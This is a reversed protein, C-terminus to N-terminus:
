ENSCQQKLECLNKYELSDESWGSEFESIVINIERDVGYTNGLSDYIESYLQDYDGDYEPIGWKLWFDYVYDTLEERKM